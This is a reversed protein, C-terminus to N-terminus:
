ARGVGVGSGGGESREAPVSSLTISCTSFRPTPEVSGLTSRSSCSTTADAGRMGATWNSWINLECTRMEADARQGGEGGWGVEVGM